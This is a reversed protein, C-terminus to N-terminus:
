VFKPDKKYHYNPSERGHNARRNLAFLLWSNLGRFLAATIAPWTKRTGCLVGRAGNGQRHKDRSFSGPWSPRHAPLLHNQDMPFTDTAGSDLPPDPGWAHPTLGAFPRCTHRGKTTKRLLLFDTPSNILRHRPNGPARCRQRTGETTANFPPGGSTVLQPHHTRTRRGARFGLAPPWNTTIPATATGPTPPEARCPTKNM